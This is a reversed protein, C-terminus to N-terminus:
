KSCNPWPSHGRTSLLFAAAKISEEPNFRLQPNTDLNMRKRTSKWTSTSFQYLGGYDGNTANPKLRSECVAINWLRQRDVSYIGSYLSFWEDLQSSTVPPITPTPTPPITPKRTPPMPTPTPTPNPTPTPSPTMIPTPTHPPTTIQKTPYRSVVTLLPPLLAGGIFPLLQKSFVEM